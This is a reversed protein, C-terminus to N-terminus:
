ERLVKSIIAAIRDIDSPGMGEHFPLNLVEHALINSVPLGGAAPIHSFVPHWPLVPTWWQRVEIRKDACAAIVPQVKNAPLRVAFAASAWKGDFGPMVRCGPIDALATLYNAALALLKRRREPWDELAALGIAASYESMKANVGHPVSCVRDANLGFNAMMRLREISAVDTSVIVGGEGVGFVKTAHLSVVSPIAAPRLSDFCWAADVVVHIGAERSYEEWRPIDLPAGFYSVPMAADCGPNDGLVEPTLSWTDADVDVFRAVHSATHPVTAVAPFSFAPIACVRSGFVSHRDNEGPDALAMQLGATASSVTLVGGEPVNFLEALASEFRGVLPGFNSYWQNKDIENLYPM